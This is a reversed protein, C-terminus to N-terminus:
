WYTYVQNTLTAYCFKSLPVVETDEEWGEFTDDDYESTANGGNGGDDNDSDTHTPPLSEERKYGIRVCDRMVDLKDNHLSSNDIRKKM